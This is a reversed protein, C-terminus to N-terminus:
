WMMGLKTLEQYGQFYNVLRPHGSKLPLARLMNFDFQLRLTILLNCEPDSWHCTGWGREVLLDEIMKFSPYHLTSPMIGIFYPLRGATKRGSLAVPDLTPSGPFSSVVQRDAVTKGDSVPTSTAVAQVPHGSPQQSQQAHHESAISELIRDMYARQALTSAQPDLKRMWPLAYKKGAVRIIRRRFVRGHKTHLIIPENSGPSPQHAAENSPVPKTPESNM